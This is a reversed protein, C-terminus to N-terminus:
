ICKQPVFAQKLSCAPPSSPTVGAKLLEETISSGPFDGPQSGCPFREINKPKNQNGHFLLAQSSSSRLCPLMGIAPPAPPQAKACGRGVNGRQAAPAQNKASRSPHSTAPSPCFGADPQSGWARVAGEGEARNKPAKNHKEGASLLERSHTQSPPLPTKVRWGKLREPQLRLSSPRVEKLVETGRM